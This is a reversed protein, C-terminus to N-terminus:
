PQVTSLLTAARLRLLKVGNPSLADRLAKEKGAGSVLVAVEGAALLLEWTMTVRQPPPKPGIVAQFCKISAPCPELGGPFLSAIHGDEGMGLIVLDLRPLGPPQTGSISRLAQEALEAAQGAPLEGRIRHSRFEEVGLPELLLEQAVRFNSEESNPGVCREDAWFFHTRDDRWIRVLAQLYDKAVRGGSLAVLAPRGAPVASLTKVTLDAAEAALAERTDFYKVQFRESM